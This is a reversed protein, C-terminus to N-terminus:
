GRYGTVGDENAGSAAVHEVASGVKAKVVAGVCLRFQGRVATDCGAVVIISKERFIAIIRLLKLKDAADEHIKVFPLPLAGRLKAGARLCVGERAHSFKGEELRCLGDAEKVQQIHQCTLKCANEPRSHEDDRGALHM